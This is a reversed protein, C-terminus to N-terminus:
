PGKPSALGSVLGWGAYIIGRKLLEEVVAIMLAKNQAPVDEWLVASAKRTEYDFQPALREYTYHFQRAVEPAGSLVRKSPRPPGTGRDVRAKLNLYQRDLETLREGLDTILTMVDDLSPEAM